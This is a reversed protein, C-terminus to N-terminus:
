DASAKGLIFYIDHSPWSGATDDDGIFDGSLKSHPAYKGFLFSGVPSSELPAEAQAGTLPNQHNVIDKGGALGDPLDQAQYGPQTAFNNADAHQNVARLLLM